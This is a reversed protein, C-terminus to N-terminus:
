RPLRAAELDLPRFFPREAELRARAPDLGCDRLLEDSMSALERRVAARGMWQKLVHL